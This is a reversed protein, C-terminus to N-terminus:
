TLGPLPPPPSADLRPPCLGQRAGIPSVSNIIGHALTDLYSLHDGASLTSAYSPNVFWTKGSWFLIMRVVPEHRECTMSQNTHQDGGPPWLPYM